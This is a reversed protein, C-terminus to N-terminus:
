ALYDALTAQWDRPVHGTTEIFSHNDLVSYAPRRAPRPFADTAVPEIATDIGAQRLIEVALEYWNCQGSNTIHFTGGADSRVLECLARALDPAYTPSGIQDHVVRLPTGARAYKLITRPFCHGDGFLWATRVITALPHQQRVQQEGLLKSRGYASLAEPEGTPHDVPIPTSKDGGFVYDTSIHILRSGTERASRAVNGAGDGNVRCAEAENEECDDVRTYAACHIALDPRLQQFLDSVHQADTIDLEHRSLGIVEADLYLRFASVVAKGLLGSSGTTLVKM